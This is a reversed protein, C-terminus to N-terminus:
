RTNNACPNARSYRPRVGCRRLLREGRRLYAHLARVGRWRQVPESRVRRFLLDRGRRRGAHLRTHEACMGALRGCLFLPLSRPLRHKPRNTINRERCFRAMCPLFHARVATLPHHGEQPTLSLETGYRERFNNYGGGFGGGFVIVQFTDCGGDCTCSRLSEEDDESLYEWLTYVGCPLVPYLADGDGSDYRKFDVLWEEGVSSAWSGCSNSSGPSFARFEEGVAYRELGTEFKFVEVVKFVSDAWFSDESDEESFSSPAVVFFPRPCVDNM